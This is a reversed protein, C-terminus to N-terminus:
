HMEEEGAFLRPLHMYEKIVFYAKIAAVGLLPAWWSSAVAGLFFEGITLVVLLIMVSVGIQYAEKKKNEDM